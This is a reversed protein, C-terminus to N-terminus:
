IKMNPYVKPNVINPKIESKEKAPIILTIIMIIGKSTNIFKKKIRNLETAIVLFLIILFYPLYLQQSLLCCFRIYMQIKTPRINTNNKFHITIGIILIVIM